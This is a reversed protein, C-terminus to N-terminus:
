IRHVVIEWTDIRGLAPVVVSDGEMDFWYLQEFDQDARGGLQQGENPAVFILGVAKPEFYAYIISGTAIKESRSHFNLHM